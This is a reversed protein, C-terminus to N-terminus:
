KRWTAHTFASHTATCLLGIWHVLCTCELFSISGMWVGAVPLGHGMKAPRPIVMPFISCLFCNIASDPLLFGFWGIAGFWLHAGLLQDHFTGWWEFAFNLGMLMGVVGTLVLHGVAM